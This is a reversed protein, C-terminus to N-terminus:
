KEMAMEKMMETYDKIYMEQLGHLYEKDMKRIMITNEMMFYTVIQNNNRSRIKNKLLHHIKLHEEMLILMNKGNVEEM